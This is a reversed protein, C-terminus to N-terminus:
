SSGEKIKEKKFAEIEDAFDDFNEPVVDEKYPGSGKYREVTGDEFQLLMMWGYGDDYTKPDVTTYDEKWEQVRYKELIELLGEKDDFPLPDEFITVGNTAFRPKELLEKNGVDIAVNKTSFYIKILEDLPHKETAAPARNIFYFDFIDVDNRTDKHLEDKETFLYNCGIVFLLNLTLLTAFAFKTLKGYLSQNNRILIKM